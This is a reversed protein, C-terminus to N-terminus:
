KGGFYTILLLIATITNHLCHIVMSSFTTKSNYDMLAFSGGLCGYPLVYLLDSIVFDNNLINTLIHAGGFLLGSVIVYFWRNNFLPRLSKRFIIEESIPAILVINIMTLFTNNYLMERVQSENSSIDKLVFYIILNFFIMAMYGLIYIKFSYKFNDKFNKFYLKFEDNLDKCYILYLVGIYIVDSIIVCLMENKIFLNFLLTLISPIIILGVLSFIFFLLNVIFKRDKTHKIGSQKKVIENENNMNDGM